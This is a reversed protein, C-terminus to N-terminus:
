PNCYLSSKLVSFVSILQHIKPPLKIKTIKVNDTPDKLKGKACSITNRPETIIIRKKINLSMLSSGSFKLSVITPVAIIIKMNLAIGPGPGPKVHNSISTRSNLSCNKEIKDNSAEIKVKTPITINLGNIALFEIALIITTNLM